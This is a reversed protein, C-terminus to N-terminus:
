TLNAKEDPDDRLVGEGGTYLDIQGAVVTCRPAADIRAEVAKYPKNVQRKPTYKACSSPKQRSFHAGSKRPAGSTHSEAANELMKRAKANEQEWASDV